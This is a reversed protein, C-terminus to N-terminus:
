EENRSQLGCTEYVKVRKEPPEEDSDIEENPMIQAMSFTVQTDQNQRKM